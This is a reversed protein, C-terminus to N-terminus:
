FQVDRRLHKKISRTHKQPQLQEKALDEDSLIDNDFKNIEDVLSKDASQSRQNHQRQSQPDKGWARKRSQEKEHQEWADIEMYIFSDIANHLEIIRCIM